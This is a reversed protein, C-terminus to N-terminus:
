ANTNEDTKAESDAATQEDSAEQSSAEASIEVDASGAVVKLDPMTVIRIAM